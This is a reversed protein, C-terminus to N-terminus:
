YKLNRILQPKDADYLLCLTDRNNTVLLHSNDEEEPSCGMEVPLEPNQSTDGGGGGWPPRTVRSSPDPAQIPLWFDLGTVKPLPDM